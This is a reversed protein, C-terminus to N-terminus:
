PRVEELTRRVAERHLPSQWAVYKGIGLELDRGPPPEDVWQYEDREPIDDIILNLEVLRDMLPIRERTFLTDPDEVAELLWARENGPLTSVFTRLRKRNIIDNVVKNVDWNAEYLSGLMRPNGGTIKWVEEFGPKSGPIQEYLQKLGERAMNWMPRLNAWEHRGIERRSVGESTAVITLIKEYREPPYEILNLLAKVYIASEKVGLIQFADDVIVAIKGRTAKILEKAMDFALWALRGLANQSIVERVLRMFEGRLEKVSFEALVERDIPNVYVVDFGLERLLEASQLLWATKGCGEPGYVVEVLRMGRDVWDEVRRLALDRDVFDVQLGQALPLKIRRM